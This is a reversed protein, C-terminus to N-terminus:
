VQQQLLQKLGSVTESIVKTTVEVQVTLDHIQAQIGLLEQPTFTRGSQLQDILENLRHYGQEIEAMLHRIGEPSEAVKKKEDYIQQIRTPASITEAPSMSSTPGQTSINLSSVSGGSAQQELQSLVQEFQQLQQPVEQVVKQAHELVPRIAELGGAIHM